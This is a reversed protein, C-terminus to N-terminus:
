EACKPNVATVGPPPRWPEPLTLKLAFRISHLEGRSSPAAAGSEGADGGQEVTHPVERLHAAWQVAFAPPDAVGATLKADLVRFEGVGLRAGGGAMALLQRTAEAQEAVNRVAGNPSSQTVLRFLERAHQLDRQTALFHFKRPEWAIADQARLGFTTAIERENLSGYPPTGLLLADPFQADGAPSVAFDWGTYGRGSDPVPLVRFEWGEGIAAHWGKGKSVEGTLEIAVCKPTTQAGPPPPLPVVRSARLGIPLPILFLLIGAQWRHFIGVNRFPTLSEPLNESQSATNRVM